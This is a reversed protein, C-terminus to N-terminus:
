DAEETDLKRSLESEGQANNKTTLIKLSNVISEMGDASGLPDVVVRNQIEHVEFKTPTKIGGKAEEDKCIIPPTRGSKCKLAV